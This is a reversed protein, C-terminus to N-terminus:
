YLTLLCHIVNKIIQHWRDAKKRFLSRFFTNTQPFSFPMYISVSYKTLSNYRGYQCPVVPLNTTNIETRDCIDRRRHCWDVYFKARHYMHTKEGKLASARLCDGFDSIKPGFKPWEFDNVRLTLHWNSSLM